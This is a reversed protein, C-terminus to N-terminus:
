FAYSLGLRLNRGPEVMAEADARSIYTANFVNGLM